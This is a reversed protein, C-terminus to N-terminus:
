ALEDLKIVLEENVSVSQTIICIDRFFFFINMEFRNKLEALLTVVNKKESM